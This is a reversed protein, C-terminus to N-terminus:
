SNPGSVKTFLSNSIDNNQVFGVFNSNLAPM